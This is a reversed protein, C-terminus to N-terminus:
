DSLLRIVPTALNGSHYENALASIAHGAIGPMYKTSQEELNALNTGFQEIHAHRNDDQRTKAQM